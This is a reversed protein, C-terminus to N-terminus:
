RFAAEASQVAADYSLGVIDTKPQSKYGGYIAHGAQMWFSDAYLFGVERLWLLQEFLGSPQDAPDPYRYYNWKAKLFKEHLEASGTKELSQAKVVSDWSSAFLERVESRQPELLDAILLAGRMSLRRALEKFLSQKGEGSLHHVCLSSLVCDAAEIEDLWGRERLDFAAVTARPGFKKLREQTHARMSAEGDLALVSANPFATLLAFSLRGEGCGLEVARFSDRPAFPILTLLTAIQEKRAPVAVPAIERYIVSNDESWTWDNPNAM